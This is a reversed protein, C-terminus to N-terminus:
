CGAEDLLRHMWAPPLAPSQGMSEPVYGESDAVLDAVCDEPLNPHGAAAARVRADPDRALRGVSEASLRPDRCAQARLWPKEDAAFRRWAESPLAPHRLLVRESLRGPARRRVARELVDGPPSPHRHVAAAAVVADADDFLGALVEPPLPASLAAAQRLFRHGAALGALGAEVSGVAMGCDPADAPSFLWEVPFYDLDEDEGDAPLSAILAARLEGTIDGRTAIMARVMPSDDTALSGVAASPLLPHAALYARYDPSETAVTSAAHESIPIHRRLLASELTASDLLLRDALEVPIPLGHQNALAALRVGTDRDGLLAYWAAAFAPGPRYWSGLLRRVASVPDGALLEAVDAPTRPNRAVASRVQPEPDAALRRLLSIWEHEDEDGPTDPQPTDAVAARVGPDESGKALDRRIPWPTAPNGALARLTEANPDALLIDLLRPSLGTERKALIPRADPLTALRTLVNESANPNLAM